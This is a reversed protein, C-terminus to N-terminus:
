SRVGEQSRLAKEYCELAEAFREMRNLLGGKHLYAITVSDDAEIARDFCQIAEEFRGLKELAAGKRVWPEAKADAERVAKEFLELAQAAQDGDLLAQGREILDEVSDPEVVHIGNSGNGTPSESLSPTQLPLRGREELSLIRKDLLDLACALRTNLDEVAPTPETSGAGLARVDPAPALGRSVLPAGTMEALRNVTRWQLFAMLVMTAIGLLAFGGSVYLMARSSSQISELEKGRQTSISDEISKLRAALAHSTAALAEANKAAADDAERRAADIALQNAHLQEQLQIVARYTDPTNTDGASNVVEASLAAVCFLPLLVLLLSKMSRSRAARNPFVGPSCFWTREPKKVNRLM